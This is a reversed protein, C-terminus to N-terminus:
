IFNLPEQDISVYLGKRQDIQSQDLLRTLLAPLQPENKYKIILQYYYRNKVRLIASPAPGLLISQPSLEQQLDRAIAFMKQAAVQEEPHSCTIKVTF